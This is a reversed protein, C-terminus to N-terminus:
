SQQLLFDFKGNYTASGFNPLKGTEKKLYIAQIDQEYLILQKQQFSTFIIYLFFIIIILTNQLLKRECNQM